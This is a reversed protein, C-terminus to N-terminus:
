YGDPDRLTLPSSVGEDGLTEAGHGERADVAEGHLVGVGLYEKGAPIVDVKLTARHDHGVICVGLGVLM